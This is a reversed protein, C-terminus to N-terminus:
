IVVRNGPRPRGTIPTTARTDYINIATGGRIGVAAKEIRKTGKRDGIAQAFSEVQPTGPHCAAGFKVSKQKPAWIKKENKARESKKEEKKTTTGLRNITATANVKKGLHTSPFSV